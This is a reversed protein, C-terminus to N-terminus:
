DNIIEMLKLAVSEVPINENISIAMIVKSNVDFLLVAKYNETGGSHGIWVTNTDDIEKFNYLMIGKGYYQGKDFMPYLDTMMNHVNELPIIGGTLLASLFVTMDKSNGVINGAGLPGSSDKPLVVEKNHALALNSPIEKPADISMLNLPVSIREKLVRRFPKAEINEIILALLVYGTNTYSWYEGPKFLNKKAKSLEILEEPTYTKNGFHFTSDVNFSYIGNTHNLLQDITINKSYEIDPFWNSLKDDFSLKGEIVLQHIVTSTILKGVSAWYFVSSNDAIVNDPKSVYGRTTEWVGKEPVLIAATIGAINHKEILENIKNDLRDELTGDIGQDLIYDTAKPFIAISPQQHKPAGKYKQANLESESSCSFLLLGIFSGLLLNLKKL